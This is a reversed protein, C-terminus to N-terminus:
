RIRVITDFTGTSDTSDFHYVDGTAHDIGMSYDSSGGFHAISGLHIPSATDPRAVVHLQGPSYNWFYLNDPDTYDDVVMQTTVASLDVAPALALALPPATIASRSVRFIGEKVPSAVTQCAAYFYEDDAAAGFCNKIHTNTGLNVAPGAAATPISYFTATTTDNIVAILNTGDFSLQTFDDATYSSGTDWPTPMWPSSVGDWLRYTRTATTSTTTDISYLAGNAWVGGEGVNTTSLGDGSSHNTAAGGTIPATWVNSSGGMYLTTGDSTLWYETGASTPFTIGTAEIIGEVGTYESQELALSTIASGSEVAIYFTGGGGLYAGAPSGGTACGLEAAGASYLAIAGPADPTVVLM